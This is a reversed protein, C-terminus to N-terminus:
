EVWITAATDVQRSQGDLTLTLNNELHSATAEKGNVFVSVNALDDVMDKVMISLNRVFQWATNFLSPILRLQYQHLRLGGSQKRRHGKYM